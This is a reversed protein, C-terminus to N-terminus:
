KSQAYSVPNSLVVKRQQLDQDTRLKQMQRHQLPAEWQLSRALSSSSRAVRQEALSTGAPVAFVAALLSLSAHPSCPQRSKRLLGHLLRLTSSSLIYCLRGPDEVCGM